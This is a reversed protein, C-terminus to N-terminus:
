SSFVAAIGEREYLERVAVERARDVADWREASGEEPFM